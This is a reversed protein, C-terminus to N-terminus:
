MHPFLLLQLSLAPGPLEQIHYARGEEGEEGVSGTKNMHKTVM